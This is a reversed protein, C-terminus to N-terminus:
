ATSDLFIEAEITYAESGVPLDAPAHNQLMCGTVVIENPYNFVLGVTNNMNATTTTTAITTKTTAALTASTTTATVIPPTTPATVIPQTTAATNTTVITSKLTATGM